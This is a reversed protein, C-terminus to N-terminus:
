KASDPMVVPFTKKVNRVPGPVDKPRRNYFTDYYPANADIWTVLADWDEEDMMSRVDKCHMPEDILVRTLRSVNSGYAYPQSISGNSHKNSVCVMPLVKEKQGTQPNVVTQVSLKNADNSPFLNHFSQLFQTQPNRTGELNLNGLMKEENHCYVCYKDFIPQIHDEYSILSENGWKPEVPVSPSRRFAKPISGPQAAVVTPRTEHCGICGRREGPELTVQSRMRRIEMKNEDLAEFYVSTKAPVYFNASGDNEVPVTGLVRTPAWSWFGYARRGADGFVWRMAGIQDDLPWGVHQLIRIYKVKGRESEPLGKHVDEIYCVPYADKEKNQRGDAVVFPVPRKKIPTPFDCSLLRDRHILEKNGYVDILFIGFMQDGGLKGDFNPVHSSYSVLFSTESLPYPCSFRGVNDVVGGQPVVRTLAPGEGPVVYPTVTWMHTEDNPGGLLDFIVIQGYALTHHGTAVTVYKNSNPISRVDRFGYPTAIHQKYAAEPYTGDPRITWFSHTDYFHREQYEWHTYGILGNDLAHPYRDIDKNDSIMRLDSGDPNCRYLNIVTHDAQFNGCMSSRGSRDSAFIISGDPAYTPEFDGWFPDDTIQRLGTGDLNIEYLHLPPTTRRLDFFHHADNQHTPHALPWVPQCAYGFVVKDADWNLDTGHVHGPGLQGNLINRVPDGPQFGTKICLDGGPKHSHPYQSGTINRLGHNSYRKTFLIEDFDLAPNALVVKRTLLRFQTYLQRATFMDNCEKVAKHADLAAQMDKQAQIQRDSVPQDLIEEYIGKTRHLYKDASSHLSALTRHVSHMSCVRWYDMEPYRELPFQLWVTFWNPKNEMDETWVAVNQSNQYGIRIEIAWQAYMVAVPDPSSMLKAALECLADNWKKSACSKWILEAIISDALPQKESSKLEYLKTLEAAGLDPRAQLAKSKQNIWEGSPPANLSNLSIVAPPTQQASASQSDAGLVFASIFVAICVNVLNTPYSMEVTIYLNTPFM